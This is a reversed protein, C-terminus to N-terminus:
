KGPLFSTPSLNCIHVSYMFAEGGYCLDMVASHLMCRVMEFHTVIVQEIIGNQEPGYPVTTEHIIGNRQCLDEVKDNILETGNDTRLKKLKRCSQTELM